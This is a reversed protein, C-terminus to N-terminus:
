SPASHEWMEDEVRVVKLLSYQSKFTCTLLIVQLPKTVASSGSNWTHDMQSLLRCDTWRSHCFVPTLFVFAPDCLSKNVPPPQMQDRIHSHANMLQFFCLVHIDFPPHSHLDPTSFCGSHTACTSLEPHSTHLPTHPTTPASALAPPQPWMTCPRPM